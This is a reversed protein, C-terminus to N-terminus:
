PRPTSLVSLGPFHIVRDCRAELSRTKAPVHEAQNDARLAEGWGGVGGEVGGGWGMGGWGGGGTSRWEHLSAGLYVLINGLLFSRFLM